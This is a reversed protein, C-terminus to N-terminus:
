EHTHSSCHGSDCSSCGCGCGGEKRKKYISRVGFAVLLIVIALVIFNGM